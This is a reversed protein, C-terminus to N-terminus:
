EAELEARGRIPRARGASAADRVTRRSAWGASAAVGPTRNGHTFEGFEM